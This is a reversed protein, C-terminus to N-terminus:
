GGRRMLRYAPYCLVVLGATHLVTRPDELVNALLFLACAVPLIFVTGPYGLARYPRPAEPERKRLALLAFFGSGNVFIFLCSAIGILSNFTGTVILSAAAATSFVM